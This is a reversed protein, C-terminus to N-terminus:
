EPHIGGGGGKQSLRHATWWPADEYGSKGTDGSRWVFEHHVRGQREPLVRELAAPFDGCGYGLCLYSAAIDSCGRSEWNGEADYHFESGPYSGTLLFGPPERTNFTVSAAFVRFFDGAVSFSPFRQDCAGPLVIPVARGDKRIEVGDDAVVRHESYGEVGLLLAEERRDLAVAVGAIHFLAAFEPHHLFERMRETYGEEETVLAAKVSYHEILAEGPWPFYYLRFFAGVWDSSPNGRDFALGFVGRHQAIRASWAFHEGSADASGRWGVAKSAEPIFNVRMLIMRLFDQIGQVSFFVVGDPRCEKLDM